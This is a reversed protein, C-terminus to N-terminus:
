RVVIGQSYTIKKGDAEDEITFELQLSETRKGLRFSGNVKAVPPDSEEVPIREHM